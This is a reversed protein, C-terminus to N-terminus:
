LSYTFVYSHETGNRIIQMDGVLGTLEDTGSDPVVKVILSDQGNDMVGSHQLAFTGNKGNLSGSVIEMAVYGASGPVATMVSLMEGKSTASLAGHFTKDITMRGPKFFASAPMHVDMPNLNVDFKGQVEM